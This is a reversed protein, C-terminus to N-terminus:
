CGQAGEVGQRYAEKLHLITSDLVEEQTLQRNDWGPLHQGGKQLAAKYKDPDRDIMKKQSSTIKKLIWPAHKPLFFAIRNEKSM